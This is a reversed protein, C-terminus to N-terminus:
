ARGQTIMAALPEDDFLTIGEIEESIFRLEEAAIAGGMICAMCTAMFSLMDRYLTLLPECEDRELQGMADNLMLVVEDVKNKILDAEDELM